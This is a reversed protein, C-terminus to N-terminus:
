IGLAFTYLQGNKMVGDLKGYCRMVSKRLYFSGLYIRVRADALVPFLYTGEQNRQRVIIASYSVKNTIKTVSPRVFLVTSSIYLFPYRFRSNLPTQM